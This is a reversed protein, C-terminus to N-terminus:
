IKGILGQQCAAAVGWLFAHKAVKEDADEIWLRREAREDQNAMRENLHSRIYNM